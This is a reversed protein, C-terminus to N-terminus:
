VNLKRLNMQRFKIPTVGTTKRFIETFYSQSPFALINSIEIPSYDSYMLMQKATDIKKNRIYDSVKQGTEEKFLRSFYSPNLDVYNALVPVTIKTHLNDYIYDLALAVHRSCVKKKRLQQMRKTYDICMIRHLESITEASGAVDAKNIYFDSLTYATTTEMGGEICYRAVMATTIVFHYKIHRLFNKSLQGLNEKELLSVSCLETVRSVDGLQVLSYFELEPDYPAHLVENERNIYEQYVIEKQLDMFKELFLLFKRLNIM